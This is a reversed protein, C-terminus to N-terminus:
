GQGCLHIGTLKISWSNVKVLILTLEPTKIFNITLNENTPDFYLPLSDETSCYQVQIEEAEGM